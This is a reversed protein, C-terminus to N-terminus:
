MKKGKLKVPYKADNFKITRSAKKADIEDFKMKDIRSSSKGQEETIYAVVYMDGYSDQEIEFVGKEKYENLYSKELFKQFRSEYSYTRDSNVTWVEEMTYIEGNNMYISKSEFKWKGTFSKEIESLPKSGLEKIKIKHNAVKIEERWKSIQTKDNDKNTSLAKKEYFEIMENAVSINQKDILENVHSVFSISWNNYLKTASNSNIRKSNFESELLKYSEIFKSQSMLENISKEVKLSTELEEKIKLVWENYKKFGEDDTVCKVSAMATSFDSGVILQLKDPKTKPASILMYAGDMQMDISWTPGMNRLWMAFMVDKGTPKSADGQMFGYMGKMEKEKIFKGLLKNKEIDDKTAMALGQNFLIKSSFLGDDLLWKKFEDKNNFVKTAVLLDSIEDFSPVRWGCPCISSNSGDTNTGDILSYKTSVNNKQATLNNTTNWTYYFGGKNELYYRGSFRKIDNQDIYLSGTYDKEPMPASTVKTLDSQNYWLSTTKINDTWYLNGIKRYQITDGNIDYITQGHSSIAIAMITVSLFLYKLKM